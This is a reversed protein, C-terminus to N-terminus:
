RMMARIMGTVFPVLWIAWVIISFRHFNALMKEQKTVLVITAWIAHGLMLLIALAGTIGHLNLQMGGALASMTTTGATDFVLGFWFFALHWPKLRGAFKESWVGVTYCALAAIMCVIAIILQSSM